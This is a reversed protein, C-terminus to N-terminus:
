NLNGTFKGLFYVFFLYFYLRYVTFLKLAAGKGRTQLDVFWILLVSVTFLAMKLRVLFESIKGM